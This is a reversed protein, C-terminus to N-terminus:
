QITIDDVYVVGKWDFDSTGDSEFVGALSFSQLRPGVDSIPTTVRFWSGIPLRSTTNGGDATTTYLHEGVVSDPHPDPVDRSDPSLYFWASLSQGAAAVYGGDCLTIGVEFQRATRKADIGIALATNGGHSVSTSTSISTVAGRTGVIAFGATDDDEFTWSSV